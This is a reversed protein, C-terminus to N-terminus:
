WNDTRFPSAPLGNVGFLSADPCDSFAYRVAVPKDVLESWVQLPGRTVQSTAPHFIRDQGAIEFGSLYKYRSSLGLEAQNFKIEVKNGKIKMSDYIPGSFSIGPINYDKVLAWYALRDGVERKDKPHIRACDGVDLTVAMGTNKVNALTYLQSERLFAIDNQVGYIYPAIQTFYFPLSKDQWADRWSAIMSPFLTKYQEARTRNAEGQYWVFGKIKYGALPHLMGNYLITATRQLLKKPIKTPMPAYGLKQLSAKPTWAEANSNGWSTAILGIPVKIVSHLKKGFFYCTASFDGVSTPAATRWSGTVDTLPTLSAKRNVQFLNIESNTSNLITELSGEIPQNKLGKVPMEMNSQGSCLWVEGLSINTIIIKESGSITLQQGTTASTTTMTLSWNGDSGSTTQAVQGWSTDVSIHTNPNDSGWLKVISNQQLVMGDSFFSPLQLKAQAFSNYSFVALFFVKYIKM